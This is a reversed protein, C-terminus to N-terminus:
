LYSAEQNPKQVSIKKEEEKASVRQLENEEGERYLSYLLELFLFSFFVSFDDEGKGM